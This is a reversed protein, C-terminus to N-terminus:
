ASLVAAGQQARIGLLVDILGIYFRAEDGLELLRMRYATLWELREALFQGAQRQMGSRLMVALLDLELALHDPCDSFEDPVSLGMSAILARLYRAADSLYLGKAQPFPTQEGPVVSWTSYLSEVPLASDALGGTFHRAFFLNKEAFPPPCFLADVEGASLFEQLPCRKRARALPSLASGFPRDDQLLRRVGDLFESWAANGTLHKWDAEDVPAFCKSLVSFVAEDEMM